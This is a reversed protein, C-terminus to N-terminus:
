SSVGADVSVLNLDVNPDIAALSTLLWGTQGEYTVRLWDSDETKAEIQLVTDFPVVVVVDATFSPAARLNSNFRTTLSAPQEVQAAQAEVVLEPTVEPTTTPTSTSTVVLPVNELSGTVSVVFFAVWGEQGNFDIQLWENDETRGTIAATEGPRLTGLPEFDTGPGSRVNVRRFSTVIAGEVEAQSPASIVIASTTIGLSPPVAQVIPLTSLDGEVVVTFFAVWGEQGEFEIQLWNNDEENRGIVTVVTDVSLRGIVPYLTSPGSRVNVTRYAQATVSEQAQIIGVVGLVVIILTFVLVFRRNLQM